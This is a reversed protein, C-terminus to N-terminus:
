LDDVDQVPKEDPEAPRGTYSGQPDTKDSAFDTMAQARAEPRATGKKKAFHKELSTLEKKFIANGAFQFNDFFCPAKEGADAAYFASFQL